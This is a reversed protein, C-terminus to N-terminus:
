GTNLGVASVPIIIMSCHVPFIFALRVINTICSCDVTLSIVNKCNVKSPTFQLSNSCSTPSKKVKNQKKIFIVIQCSCVSKITVSFASCELIRLTWDKLFLKTPNLIAPNPESSKFSSVWLYNQLHLTLFITFLLRQLILQLISELLWQEHLPSRWCLYLWKTLGLQNSPFLVLLSYFWLNDAILISQALNYFCETCRDVAPCECIKLRHHHFSLYLLSM